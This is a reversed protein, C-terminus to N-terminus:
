REERVREVIMEFWEEARVRFRAWEDDAMWEPRRVALSGDDTSFTHEPRERAELRELLRQANEQSTRLLALEEVVVETTVNEPDFGPHRERIAEVYAAYPEELWWPTASEPAPTTGNTDEPM